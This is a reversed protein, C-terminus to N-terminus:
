FFIERVRISKKFVRFNVNVRESGVDGHLNEKSDAMCKMSKKSSYIELVKWSKGPKGPGM